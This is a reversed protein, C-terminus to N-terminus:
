VVTQVITDPYSTVCTALTQSCLVLGKQLIELAQKPAGKNLALARLTVGPMADESVSHIDTARGFCTGAVVSRTGDGM